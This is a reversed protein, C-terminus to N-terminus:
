EKTKPFLYKTVIIFIGLVNATTGGILALIVNDSLLFYVKWIKYFGQLLLIVLVAILWGVILWFIRGTYKKRETIDQHKSKLDARKLEEDIQKEETRTFEDAKKAPPAEKINDLPGAM